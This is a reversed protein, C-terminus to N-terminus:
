ILRHEVAYAAAQARGNVGVKAYLDSLLTRVRPASLSLEFAIEKSSLGRALYRLLAKERETLSESNTSHQGTDWAGQWESLVQRTSQSSLYPDGRAVTHVALLLDDPNSDKRVYGLAGVRLAAIEQDPELYMTLMIVKAGPVERVIQRTAEIGNLVPMQIDMLIIDPRLERALEVAEAGNAAGGVVQVRSDKELTTKLGSRVLEHDEVLLVRVSM